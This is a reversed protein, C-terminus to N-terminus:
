RGTLLPYPNQAGEDTYMGFHLHPATSEANGTNGVYGLVTDHTVEAGFEIGDAIRDLHAYYYRVGGAGVTFVINGGLRNTGARLVYGPTAAYVPTGQEAFIDTGEHTRGEQRAEGWTDAIQSQRVGQVPILLETDPPEQYLKALRYPFAIANGIEALQIVIDNQHAKWEHLSYAFSSGIILVLIVALPRSM